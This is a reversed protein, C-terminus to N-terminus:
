AALAERANAAVRRPRCRVPCVVRLVSGTSEGCDACWRLDCLYCVAGPAVVVGHPCASDATDAAQPEDRAPAAYNSSDASRDDADDAGDAPEIERRREGGSSVIGQISSVIGQAGDYAPDNANHGRQVGAQAAASPASSASPPDAAKEVLSLHITRAGAHGKRAFQVGIGITLLNPELRKLANSLANAAAPWGRPSRQREAEPLRVRLEDLLDRATGQWGDAGAAQVLAQLPVVLPSAELPLAAGEDRNDGYANEFDNGTWGLAPAVAVGWHAFDAMRFPRSVSVASANRLGIAVADFLAGLISPQGRAFDLWFEREPTVQELRPPEIFISRDLLDSREVFDTIGTMLLPRVADFVQEEDDTYLARVGLGGGTSLRCLGDSLWGPLHSFNDFVLLHSGRAVVALDRLERPEARLTLTAPDTLEKAVRATTSKARGQGGRLVLVPYPGQGLLAYSLWTVFLRFSADEGVNVFRRLAAIAGGTVPEPLARLTPSRWFRVPTDAISVLRWGTRDIEACRWRADGLDLFVKGDCSAVRLFVAREPGDHLARGELVGLTDQVAQARPSTGETKYCLAALWTRFGKSRLPQTETHDDRRFSAFARGDPTHFLEVQMQEALQVLRTAQSPPRAAAAGPAPGSAAATGPERDSAFSAVWDTWTPAAAMAARVDEATHGDALYDAIDGKEKVDPLEVVRVEAAIGTLAAGVHQMLGRGPADNDPFLYVRRGCLPELAMGFDRQEAGGGLSVAVFGAGRAADACKEGEHLQVDAGAPAALLELLRYLPLGSITVPQGNVGEWPMTKGGDPKVIRAHTARLAGDAARYEHRTADTALAPTRSTPVRVKQLKRRQGTYRGVPWYGRARLVDIVSQQLCGAHCRVLVRGDRETVSLSPHTDQHKPCHAKQGAPRQCDCRARECRLAARITPADPRNTPNNDFPQFQAVM